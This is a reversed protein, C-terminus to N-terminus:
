GVRSLFLDLFRPADVKLCVQINPGESSDRYLDETTRGLSDDELDVQLYMPLTKVLDPHTVVGVALPDHLACGKLYPYNGKYAQIYYDTFDAFFLSCETGKQRWNQVEESTLVTKRTVDLGVLTIPLASKLVIEAAHPDIYINAEAFKTVNGPTTIAGGMSVVSGVMGVIDPDRIIAHALNTLPGTTILTLEKGYKRVQEIIYDVAHLSSAQRQPSTKVTDGLGDKGHFTGSYRRMRVLPKESGKYVPLDSQLQELVKLTNRTSFDVNVMGYTTTIGLLEIEPSAVAYAIALADDIGTDVDLIVKPKM